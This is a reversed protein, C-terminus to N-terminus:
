RGRSPNLMIGELDLELKLAETRDDGASPDPQTIAFAHIALLTPGQELYALMHTLGRVDGTAEMHAGIRTFTGRSLSDNRVQIAGLKVGSRAAAGSLIGALTAGAGNVSNGELIEPALAIMQRGRAAATDRAAEARGAISLARSLAARAETSEARLERAWDRYVPIGRSALMVLTLAGLGFTIARRDRAGLELKKM